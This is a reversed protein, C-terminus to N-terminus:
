FQGLKAPTGNQRSPVFFLCERCVNKGYLRKYLLCIHSIYMCIANLMGDRYVDRGDDKWIFQGYIFALTPYHVPTIVWEGKGAAM